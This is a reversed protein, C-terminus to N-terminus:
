APSVWGAELFSAGQAGPGAGGRAKAHVQLPRELHYGITHVPNLSAFPDQFIMQVDARYDLSAARPESKLVARGKLVIEGATPEILRAVLRATTSKGSGSEGVLATVKGRDLTFSADELAHVQARGFWGGVPFRKSLGRVELLPPPAKQGNSGAPQRELERM